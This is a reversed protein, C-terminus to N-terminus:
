KSLVIYIKNDLPPCPVYSPVGKCNQCSCNIIFGRSQVNYEKNFKLKKCYQIRDAERLYETTKSDLNKDSRLSFFVKNFDGECLACLKCLTWNQSQINKNILTPM